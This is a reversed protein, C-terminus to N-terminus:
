STVERVLTHPILTEHALAKPVPTEHASAELVPTDHALPRDVQPEHDLTGMSEVASPDVRASMHESSHAQPSPSVPTAIQRGRRRGHGKGRKKGGPRRERDAFVSVFFRGGNDGYQRGISEPSIRTSHFYGEWPGGLFFYRRLARSGRGCDKFMHWSLLTFSILVVYLFQIGSM